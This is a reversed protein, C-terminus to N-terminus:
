VPDFALSYSQSSLFMKHRKSQILPPWRSFCLSKVLSSLKRKTTKYEGVGLLVMLLSDFHIQQNDKQRRTRIRPGLASLPRAQGAQGKFPQIMMVDVVTKDKSVIRSTSKSSCTNKLPELFVLTLLAFNVTIIMHRCKGPFQLCRPKLLTPPPCLSVSCSAWSWEKLLPSRQHLNSSLKKRKFDLRQKSLYVKSSLSWSPFLFHM